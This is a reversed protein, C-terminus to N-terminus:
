KLTEDQAFKDLIEKEHNVYSKILKKIKEIEKEKKYLLEFIRNYNAGSLNIDIKSQLTGIESSVIDAIPDNKFDTM